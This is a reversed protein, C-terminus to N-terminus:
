DVLNQFFKKAIKKFVSWRIKMKKLILRCEDTRRLLTLIMLTASLTQAVVTATAVGDVDMGLLTVFVVNLCLNTMGAIILYKMPTKTDGSARLIAAGFEFLFNPVAGLFYIKLYLTSLPLIDAPTSMMKLLPGSFLLGIVSM